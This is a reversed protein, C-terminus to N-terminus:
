INNKNTVYRCKPFGSCGWFQKGANEGKKATRLVMEKGCRPCYRKQEQTFPPITEVTPSTIVPAKEEIFPPEEVLAANSNVVAPTVPSALASNINAIHMQKVEEGVQSYSYLKAFINDIMQPSLRNGMIAANQEVASRVYCRKMVKNEGTTLKIDKLECRDSFLIYSYFPLEGFEKLTEALCKIHLKNQMIPNLFHNKVARGRSSKLCQTWNKQNETGFIWGSYNKSEFVYIGSEHLLIVDVETTQGNERPLYTNFLFKRPQPLSELEKFTFYEGVVGKSRLTAWFKSQTQQYYETKMYKNRAILEKVTLGGFVAILVLALFIQEM